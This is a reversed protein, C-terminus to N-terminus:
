NEKTKYKTPGFIRLMRRDFTEFTEEKSTSVVFKVVV